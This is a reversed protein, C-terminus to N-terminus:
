GRVGVDRGDKEELDRNDGMDNLWYEALENNMWEGDVNAMLFSKMENMMRAQTLDGITPEEYKM